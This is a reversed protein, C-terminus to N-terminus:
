PTNRFLFPYKVRVKGGGEPAPFELSLMTQTICESMTKNTSLANDSIIKATEVVGGVDQEGLITFEVMVMGRAGPLTDRALMYCEKILPRAGRIVSQIYHKDLKGSPPVPLPPAQQDPNATPQDEGSEAAPERGERKLRAAEIARLLRERDKLAKLRRVGKRLPRRARTENVQTATSASSPGVASARTGDSIKTDNTRHTKSDSSGRKMWLFVAAAAVVVIAIAVIPRGM